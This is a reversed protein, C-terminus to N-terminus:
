LRRGVARYSSRRLRLTAARDQDRTIQFVQAVPGLESLGVVVVDGENWGIDDIAEAWSPGRGIV